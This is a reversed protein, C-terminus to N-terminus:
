QTCIYISKVQVSKESDHLFIFDMTMNPSDRVESINSKRGKPMVNPRAYIVIVHYFFNDTMQSNIVNFLSEVDLVFNIVSRKKKLFFYNDQKVLYITIQSSKVM